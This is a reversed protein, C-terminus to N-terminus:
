SDPAAWALDVSRRKEPTFTDKTRRRSSSSYRQPPEAAAEPMVEDGLRGTSDSTPATPWEYASGKLEIRQGALKEHQYLVSEREWPLFVTWRGFGIYFSRM